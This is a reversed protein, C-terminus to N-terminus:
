YHQRHINPTIRQSYDGPLDQSGEVSRLLHPPYYYGRNAITAAVNALQLPTMQVEGQGISLSRVTIAKWGTLGYYKNFYSDAPLFGKAQDTIDGPLKQGVGFSLVYDRWHNYSEQITGYGPKELISKYVQWFYPNCSQEIAEPLRLPSRHNHSCPIPTSIVGRCPYATYDHLVGEQM